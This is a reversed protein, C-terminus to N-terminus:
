FKEVVYDCVVIDIGRAFSVNSFSPQFVVGFDVQFPRYHDAVRRVVDFHRARHANVGGRNRASMACSSGKFFRACWYEVIRVFHLFVKFFSSIRGIEPPNKLNKPTITVKFILGFYM